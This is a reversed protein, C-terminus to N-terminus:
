VTDKNDNRKVRKIKIPQKKLSPIVWPLWCLPTLTLLLVIFAFIGNTNLLGFYSRTQRVSKNRVPRCKPCKLDNKGFETGCESCVWIDGCNPCQLDSKSVIIGCASCIIKKVSGDKKSFIFNRSM